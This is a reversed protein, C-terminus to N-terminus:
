VARLSVPALGTVELKVQQGPSLPEASAAAGTLVLSGAPLAEGRLLALLQVLSEVPNGSIASSKAETKLAGDVFLRMKLSALDLGRPARADGALVFHSSSGNDAVIDALSLYRFARYRSDPIELAACISAIAGRAEELKVDGRLERSTVFAIEPEIKPHIGRAVQFEAGESIRMADTLVGYVSQSLGMQERKAKSTLGMKYGVLAEGRAVRLGIGAQQIRYGDELDLEAFTKSLPEIERRLRRAEDLQHALKGCTAEDLMSAMLTVSSLGSKLFAM